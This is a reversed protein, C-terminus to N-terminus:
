RCLLWCICCALQPMRAVVQGPAVMDGIDVLLESVRGAYKTDIDIEDAEIRGNGFSIGVPLPPHTQKWWYYSGGAAAFLVAAFPLAIQWRWRRVQKRPTTPVPLQAKATPTALMLEPKTSPPTGELLQDM